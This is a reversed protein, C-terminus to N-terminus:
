AACVGFLGVSMSAYIATILLMIVMANLVPVVANYDVLNILSFLILIPVSIVVSCLM